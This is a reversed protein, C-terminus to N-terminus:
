ARQAEGAIQDGTKGFRRQRSKYEEIAKILEAKSFDPWYVDTFYLESYACQWLLFNSIRQEGGTRILLDPPPLDGLSIQEQITDVTIDEPKIKGEAVQQAIKQTAQQIDWQGGYDAALVLTTQAGEATMAEVEAMAKQLKASFHQRQGIVRLRVKNKKLKKAENKLYTLFLMMLAGVEKEPRQWNETSFAFLTLVEVGLDECAELVTRVTEVGVKHGAPGPLGRKKAWRNNGDMIIAIHKPTENDPPLVVTRNESSMSLESFQECHLGM